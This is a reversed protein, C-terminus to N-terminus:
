SISKGYTVRTKHLRKEYNKWLMQIAKNEKLEPNTEVWKINRKNFVRQMKNFIVATIGKNQFDPRIGILYFSARNNMYWKKFDYTSKYTGLGKTKSGGM